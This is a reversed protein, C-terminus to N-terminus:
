GVAALEEVGITPWVVKECRGEMPESDAGENDCVADVDVEIKGLMAM